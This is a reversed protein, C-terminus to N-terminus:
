ASASLPTLNLDATLHERAILDSELSGKKLENMGLLWNEYVALDVSEKKYSYSLLDHDIKGKLVNVIQQVISDQANLITDLTQDHNGAFIVKSDRDRILQVGIR